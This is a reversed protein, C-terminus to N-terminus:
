FYYSKLVHAALLAPLPWSLLVHSWLGIRRLSQARGFPMRGEWAVSASLLVGACALGLFSAMLVLNLNDGLRFGTHVGLALLAAATLVVHAIRWWAFDGLRVFRLRKRLALPLSLVCLGLISYGSIQKLTGDRWLRDWRWSLQVSDPYAVSAGLALLSLALAGLTVMKLTRLGPAQSNAAPTDLFGALVAQCSGCGTGAQTRQSLAQLDRAGADVAGRIDGCSVANCNCVIAAAPLAQVDVAGSDAFLQGRKRFRWLQLPSVWRRNNCYERLAPLEPWDGIANVSDIHGGVLSIRRYVGDARFSYTRHSAPLQPEGLSFVSLGAVKLSTVLQPRRYAATDADLINRVAIAAQEYGPAVIGFVENDFECCEGVAYIDPDSSRMQADVTVGRGIALGAQLALDLNPRIGTALVLTDCPIESGNRLVVGELQGTGLLMRVSNGPLLEIGRARIQAALLAGAQEDLQRFMPHPNHDVLSVRTNHRQMARAAEIGLLGAGLVLTHQSATRRAALAEADRLDRFTYVGKMGSRAFAPVNPRSGTALVLKRYPQVRGCEDEVTAAARDIRRVRCREFRTLRDSRHPLEAALSIDTVSHQGALLGSLKVRNYPEYREDGYLVLPLPPAAARLERLTRVGVPGAGVIVVPLAAGPDAAAHLNDNLVSATQM